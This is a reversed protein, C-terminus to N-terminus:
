LRSGSGKKRIKGGLRRGWLQTLYRELYNRRNKKQFFGFFRDEMKDGKRRCRWRTEWNREEMKTVEKTM